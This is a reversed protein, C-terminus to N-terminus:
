QNPGGRPGLVIIPRDVIVDSPMNWVLLQAIGGVIGANAEGCLRASVTVLDCEVGGGFNFTDLNSRTTHPCPSPAILLQILIHSSCIPTRCGLLPPPCSLHYFRLPILSQVGIRGNTTYRLNTVVGSSIPYLVSLFRDVIPNSITNGFNLLPAGLVM